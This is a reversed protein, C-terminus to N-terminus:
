FAQGDNRESWLEEPSANDAPVFGRRLPFVVLRALRGRRFGRKEGPPCFAGCAVKQLLYYAQERDIV